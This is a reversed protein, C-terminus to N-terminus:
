SLLIQRGHWQIRHQGQIDDGPTAYKRRFLEFVFLGASTSPIQRLTTRVFGRSCWALWGGAKVAQISARRLTSRYGIRFTSASPSPRPLPFHNKRRQHFRSEVHRLRSHHLYQLHNLPHQVVQQTVSAALGALLIFTPELTFHPRIAEKEEGQGSRIDKTGSTYYHTLFSYYGQQKCYEFVAFFIGYGLSEKLFSLGWGAFIARPGMEYLKVRAYQWMSTYTGSVLLNVNFRSQLADLPAAVVSQITGATFGAAFTAPFSPPPHVRKTSHSSPPHVLGLIQLYSTYLIAGIGANALLPPFLHNPVYGWGHTRIAHLLLGPTTTRWSWGKNAQLHQHTVRAFHLYDVRSRLFAKVPIRFYLRILQATIARAGAATVGTAANTTPKKQSGDYQELSSSSSSTLAPLTGEFDTPDEDLPNSTWQGM